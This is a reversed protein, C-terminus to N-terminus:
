NQGNKLLKIINPNLVVIHTIKSEQTIMSNLNNIIISDYGLKVMNRVYDVPKYRYFDIWVQLFQQHPNINYQIADKAAIKYGIM